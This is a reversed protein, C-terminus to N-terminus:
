RSTRRHATVSINRSGIDLELLEHLEDEFGLHGAVVDFVLDHLIYLSEFGAVRIRNSVKFGYDVSFLFRSLFHDGISDVYCRLSVLKFREEDLANFFHSFLDHLPAEFVFDVVALLELLKIFAGFFSFLEFFTKEFQCLKSLITHFDTIKRALVLRVDQIQEHIILARQELDVLRKEWVSGGVIRLVLLLDSPPLLRHTHHLVGKAIVVIANSCYDSRSLILSALATLSGARAEHLLLVWRGQDLAVVPRNLGKEGLLVMLLMLLQRQALMLM